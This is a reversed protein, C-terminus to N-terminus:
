ERYEKLAEKFSDEGYDGSRWWEMAKFVGSMNRMITDARVNFKRCVLLLETAEKAADDAYGLESLANAMDELQNLYELIDSTDKVCLYDFSGGSM